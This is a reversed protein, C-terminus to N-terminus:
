CRISSRWGRCCRRAACASRSGSSARTLVANRTVESGTGATTPVAIFPAPERELARGRGVVELYDLPPGENTLLAAIAKGADLPSGGGIAVVVIAAAPERRSCARRSTRPATPEGSVSWLQVAVGAARLVQAAPLARDVDRGTVLL